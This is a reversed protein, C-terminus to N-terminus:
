TQNKIQPIAEDLFTAASHHDLIFICQLEQLNYFQVKQVWALADM